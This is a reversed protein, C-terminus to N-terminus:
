TAVVYAATSALGLMGDHTLRAAAERFAREASRQVEPTQALFTQGARAVGGAIGRWLTDVAVEWRWTLEEAALVELGASEALGCLGDVSREFDLDPSLNQSPGPVVGAAAFAEAVLLGWESPEALWTTAAVRGGPRTVRALERMVARPDGVHNVVFNATVTDFTDDGFPLDPLSAELVAGAVVTKSIGVMQPDADVAVVTRGLSAARAALAGTGCGVDLHPGAPTDALLREITGECLSAFSDRYTEALGTFTSVRTDLGVRPSTVDKEVAPLESGPRSDTAAELTTTM